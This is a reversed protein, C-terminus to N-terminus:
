PELEQGPRSFDVAAERGLGGTGWDDWGDEMQSYPIKGNESLLLGELGEEESMHLSCMLMTIDRAM